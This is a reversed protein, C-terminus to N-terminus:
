LKKKLRNKVFFQEYFFLMMLGVSKLRHNGLYDKYIAYNYKILDLKSASLGAGLRYSALPQQIGIAPGGKKVVDLWMAWDQRKRMKPIAIKGLKQADYIGTLNGLYNSKILKQYTLKALVQQIAIPRSPDTDFIEYASYCVMAGSTKLAELQAKIKHPKWLDDADLFAIYRGSAAEIAKNRSVGAGKNITNQSVVFRLDQTQHQQSYAKAFAYSDDSSYDDVMIIELPRYHQAILSDLADPLTSSNNYVPVIVSVLDM